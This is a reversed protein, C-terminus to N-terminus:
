TVWGVRIKDGIRSKKRKINALSNMQFSFSLCPIGKLPDQKKLMILLVYFDFKQM